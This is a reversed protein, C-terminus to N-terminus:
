LRKWRSSMTSPSELLGRLTCIKKSQENVLRAYEKFAKYDTNRCAQQLKHITQPNFLHEEGDARWQYYGGPDLVHGNVQRKPFAHEHRMQVERAIVDLGIGSVRSATGTLYKEVVTPHL